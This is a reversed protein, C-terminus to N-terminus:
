LMDNSTIITYAVQLPHLPLDMWVPGFEPFDLSERLYKSLFRDAAEVGGDLFIAGSIHEHWCYVIQFVDKASM